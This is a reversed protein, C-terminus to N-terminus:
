LVFVIEGVLVTDLARVDHKTTLMSAHGAMAGTVHFNLAVNLIPLSFSYLAPGRLRKSPLSGVRDRAEKGPPLPTPSEKNM